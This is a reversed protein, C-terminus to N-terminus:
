KSTEKASAVTEATKAAFNVRMGAFVGFAPRQFGTPNEYREDFVNDIRAFLTIAKGLDYDAALNV